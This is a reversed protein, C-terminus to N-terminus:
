RGVTGAQIYTVTVTGSGSNVVVRSATCPLFYNDNQNTTAAVLDANDHAFWTCGAAGLNIIDDFTHQVTYNVTGSVVCAIAVNFPNEFISFVAPTSNGSGTQARIMPIM